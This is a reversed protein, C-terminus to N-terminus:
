SIIGIVIEQLDQYNSLIWSAVISIIAWRVTAKVGSKGEEQVPRLINKYVDDYNEAVKRISNFHEEIDILPRELSKLLENKQIKEKAEQIHNQTKAIEGMLKNPDHNLLTTVRENLLNQDNTFQALANLLHDYTEPKIGCMTIPRFGDEGIQEFYIAGSQNLEWLRDEDFGKIDWLLQAEDSNYDIDGKADAIKLLVTLIKAKLLPKKEIKLSYEM